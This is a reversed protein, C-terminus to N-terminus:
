DLKEKLYHVIDRFSLVGVPRNGDDVLPLHRFSHVSMLNLAHAVPLDGHVTIPDPTMYDALPKTSLDDVIGAVRTLVDRETFIGVLRDEEDTVLLCGINHANMQRVAKALSASVDVEIPAHPQLASLPTETLMDRMPAADVHEENIADVYEDDLEASVEGAVNAAVATEEITWLDASRYLKALDGKGKQAQAAEIQAMLGDTYTLKDVNRIIGLPAPFDPYEMSSIMLALAKSTVDYVILDKETFRDGLAVVEPTFRENLRIGKDRNKGFVMPKGDELYIIHEDRERRDQLPGWENPNFIVCNQYVEVFSTGKHAAAAALTDGLHKTHADLSRAVFTAEAALAVAVPNIPQEISGMPSSKSKHGQRSTPSYQGKTLGYVRNNFLIINLNVNRRLAHLLHNGGISLGDGDGTVVWISLDPNTIALGTALTPARGHISHIGYTDMYYPFRSSCGIGSIFVINEKPVGLDPLTKQIQALISYDGCGPCWRVTQDSVFDKRTLQLPITTTSM